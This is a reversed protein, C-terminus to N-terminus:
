VSLWPQFLLPVFRRLDHGPRALRDRGRRGSGVDPAQRAIGGASGTFVGALDFPRKRAQAPGAATPSRHALARRDAAAHRRRTFADARERGDPVATGALDRRRPRVPWLGPGAYFGGHGYGVVTDRGSCGIRADRGTDNGVCRPVVAMARGVTALCRCRTSTRSPLATARWNSSRSRDLVPRVTRRLRRVPQGIM